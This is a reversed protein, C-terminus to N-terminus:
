FVTFVARSCLMKRKYNIVLYRTTFYFNKSSPAHKACFFVKPPRTRGLVSSLRVTRYFWIVETFECIVVYTKWVRLVLVGHFAMNRSKKM